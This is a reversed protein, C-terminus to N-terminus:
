KAKTQNREKQMAKFDNSFFSNLKTKAFTNFFADVIEDDIHANKENIHGNLYNSVPISFEMYIAYKDVGYVKTIAKGPLMKELTIRKIDKIMKASMENTQKIEEFIHNMTNEKAQKPEKQKTQKPQEQNHTYGVMLLVVKCAFFAFFIGALFLSIKKIRM